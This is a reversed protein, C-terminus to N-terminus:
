GECVLFKKLTKEMFEDINLETSEEFIQSRMGCYGAKGQHYELFDPPANLDSEVLRNVIWMAEAYEDSDEDLYHFDTGLDDQDQIWVGIPYFQQVKEEYRYDIFYKVRM